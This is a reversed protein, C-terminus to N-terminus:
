AKLWEALRLFGFSLITGELLHLDGLTLPFSPLFVSGALHGTAFGIVGVALYVPLQRFDKGRLFHYISGCLLGMLAALVWVAKM